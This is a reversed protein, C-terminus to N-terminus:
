LSLLMDILEKQPFMDVKDKRVNTHSWMGKIRGYYADENFEFAKVGKEKIESVLGLKIDINDRKLM